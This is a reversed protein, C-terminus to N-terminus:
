LSLVEKALAAIRPEVGMELARRITMLDRDSAALPQLPYHRHFRISGVALKVAETRVKRNEHESLRISIDFVEQWTAHDRLRFLAHLGNRLQNITLGGSDVATRIHDYAPRGLKMEPIWDVIERRDLQLLLKNLPDNV